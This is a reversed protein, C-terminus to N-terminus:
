TASSYAHIPQRVLGQGQDDGQLDSGRALLRSARTAWTDSRADPCSRYLADLEAWRPRLRTSRC